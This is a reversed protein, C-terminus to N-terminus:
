GDCASEVEGVSLVAPRALRSFFCSFPLYHSLSLSLSLFLSLSNSIFSSDVINIYM